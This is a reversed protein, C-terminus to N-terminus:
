AGGTLRRELLRFLAPALQDLDTLDEADRAGFLSQALRGAQIGLGVAEIGSNRCRAILERTAEWDAPDGDTVVLLLRRAEPRRLLAYGAWWLAEALPTGGEARLAFRGAARSARETFGLLPVVRDAASGPFAAVAVACGPIEQLALATALAARQAVAIRRQMSGSRDLLILVATDPTKRRDRALFVGPDRCVLRYLQRGALHHGRRGRRQAETRSAQVLAALRRRLAVSAARVDTALTTAAPAAPAPDPEAMTVARRTRVAETARANLREGLHRGLDGWHPDQDADTAALIAQLVAGAGAHGAGQGPDAPPDRDGATWEPDGNPDGADGNQGHTPSRDPPHDRDSGGQGAAGQGQGSREDGHGANSGPPDDSGDPAEDRSQCQSPGPEQGSGDRGLNQGRARDNPDVGSDPPAGPARRGTQPAPDTTNPPSETQAAAFMRQIREALDVAAATSSVHRVEFALAALKVMVGAPLAQRLLAEARDALPGLATQGLVDARLRYLLYVQVQRVPPWDAEPVAWFDGQAVLHGVLRALNDRCGPLERGLAAEIRVDELIRALTRGLPTAPRAADFDTHRLHAGEHDLFGNALIWAAADAAPLAPLYITRGDTQAREAGIVVDVGLKRGLFKALIPLADLLTQRRM